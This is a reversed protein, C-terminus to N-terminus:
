ILSVQIDLGLVLQAQGAKDALTIEDTIFDIHSAGTQKFSVFESLAYQSVVENIKRSGEKIIADNFSEDMIRKGYRIIENRLASLFIGKDHVASILVPSGKLVRDTEKLFEMAGNQGTLWMAALDALGKGLKPHGVLPLIRFFLQEQASTKWKGCKKLLSVPVQEFAPAFIVAKSIIKNPKRIQNTM